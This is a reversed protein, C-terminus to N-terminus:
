WIAIISINERSVRFNTYSPFFAYSVYKYIKSLSFTSAHPGLHWIYMSSLYHSDRFMEYFAIGLIM